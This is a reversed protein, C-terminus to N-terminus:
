RGSSNISQNKCLNLCREIAKFIREDSDDENFVLLRYGNQKCLKAKNKDRELQELFARKGGFYEVPKYHQTGHYEILIKFDPIAIDISQPRLWKPRYQHIVRLKPYQKRIKVLLGMEGVWGEGIRPVGYAVRIRNHFEKLQDGCIFGLSKYTDHRSGIGATPVGIKRFSHEKHFILNAGAGCHFIELDNKNKSRRIGPKKGAGIYEQYFWFKHRDAKSFVSRLLKHPDKRKVNCFWFMFPNGDLWDNIKGKAKNILTGSDLVAAALIFPHPNRKLEVALVVAVEENIAACTNKSFKRAFAELRVWDENLILYRSYSNILWAINGGAGSDGWQSYYNNSQFGLFNLWRQLLRKTTEPKYNDLSQYILAYQFLNDLLDNEHKIAILVEQRSMKHIRNILSSQECEYIWKLKSSDKYKPNLWFPGYLPDKKWDGLFEKLLKLRSYDHM